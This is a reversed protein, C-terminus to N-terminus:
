FLGMQGDDPEFNCWIVETRRLGGQAYAKKERRHWQHLVEDYLESGYGSLIVRAKTRLIEHLLEEHDAATMEKRYMRGGARAQPLYPPDLYMLVEPSDFRRILDLGARNEIQAEKLRGACVRIEEPLANWEAVAYGAERGITDIKFGNKQHIKKGFGMKCRILFRVARDFEDRGPNEWADDYDARSFPIMRVERALREPDDRLVRFFNVVDGDLDNITEIPSKEKRFFVAGSGFFPDLYSRHKPMMGIIEASLKAKGGPYNLLNM